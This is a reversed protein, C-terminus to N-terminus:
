NKYIEQTADGSSVRVTMKQDAAIQSLSIEKKEGTQIEVNGTEVKEKGALLEWHFNINASFNEIAFNLSDSKPEVFSLAYWNKNYTPDNYRSDISFLYVSSALFLVIFFLIIKTQQRM